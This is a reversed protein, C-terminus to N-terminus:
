ASGFDTILLPASSGVVLEQGERACIVGPYRLPEGAAGTIARAVAARSRRVEFPAITAVSEGDVLRAASVRVIVEEDLPEYRGGDVLLVEIRRPPLEFPAARHEVLLDTMRRMPVDRFTARRWRPPLDGRLLDAGRDTVRLWAPWVLCSHGYEAPHGAAEHLLIAASGNRWVIPLAPPCDAISAAEDISDISSLLELDSKIRAATTVISHSRHTVIAHAAVGDSTAEAIFRVRAGAPLDTELLAEFAADCRALLKADAIDTAAIAGESCRAEGWSLKREILRGDTWTEERTAARFPEFHSAESSM